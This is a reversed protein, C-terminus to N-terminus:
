KQNDGSFKAKSAPPRGSTPEFQIRVQLEIRHCRFIVIKDLTRAYEVTGFHVAARDRTFGWEDIGAELIKNLFVLRKSKPKTFIAVRLQDRGVMSDDEIIRM